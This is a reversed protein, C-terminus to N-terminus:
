FLLGLSFRKYKPKISFPCGHLFTIPCLIYELLLLSPLAPLPCVCCPRNTWVRRPRRGESNPAPGSQFVPGPGGTMCPPDSSEKMDAEWASLCLPSSLLIKPRIAQKPSSSNQNRYNVQSSLLLAPSSRLAKAGLREWRRQTQTVPWLAVRQSVTNQAGWSCGM